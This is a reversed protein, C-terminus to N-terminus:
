SFVVLSLWLLVLAYVVEATNTPSLDGYGVTTMTSLAFHVSWLYKTSKPLWEDIEYQPVLNLWSSGYHEEWIVAVLYWFCGSVHAVLALFVIIKGIIASVKNM